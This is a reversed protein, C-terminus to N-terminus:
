EAGEVRIMEAADAWVKEFSQSSKAAHVCGGRSAYGMLLGGMEVERGDATHGVFTKLRYGKTVRALLAEAMVGMAFGSTVSLANKSWSLPWRVTEPEPPAYLEWVYKPSCDTPRDPGFGDPEHVWLGNRVTRRSTTAAPTHAGKYFGVVWEGAEGQADAWEASGYTPEPHLHNGFACDRTHEHEQLCVPCCRMYSMGEDDAKRGVWELKELMERDNM